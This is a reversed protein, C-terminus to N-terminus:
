LLAEPRERMACAACRMAMIGEEGPWPGYVFALPTNEHGCERCRYTSQERTDAHQAPTPYWVGKRNQTQAM